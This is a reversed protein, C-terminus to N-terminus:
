LAHVFYWAQGGSVMFPDDYNIFNPQARGEETEEKEGVELAPAM